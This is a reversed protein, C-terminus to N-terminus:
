HFHTWLCRCSLVTNWCNFSNHLAVVYRCGKQRVVLNLVTSDSAATYVPLVELKLGVLILVTCLQAVANKNWNREKGDDNSLSWPILFSIFSVSFLGARKCCSETPTNPYCSSSLTFSLSFHIRIIWIVSLVLIFGELHFDRVAFLACGFNDDNRNWAVLSIVAGRRSIRREQCCIQAWHVSNEVTALWLPLLSFLRLPSALGVEQKLNDNMARMNSQHELKKQLKDVQALLSNYQRKREWMKRTDEQVREALMDAYTHFSNFHNLVYMTRKPDSVIVYMNWNHSTQLTMSINELPSGWISVIYVPLLSDM